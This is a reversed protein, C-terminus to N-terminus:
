VCTVNHLLGTYGSTVYQLQAEGLPSGTSRRATWTRSVAKWKRLEAPTRSSPQPSSGLSKEARNSGSNGATGYRAPSGMGSSGHGLNLSM